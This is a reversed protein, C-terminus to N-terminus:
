ETTLPCAHTKVRLDLLIMLNRESTLSSAHPKVRLDTPLCSTERKRDLTHPKVRFDPLIMLNRESTLPAHPIVRIEPVVHSKVRLDPLLMLNSKSFLFHM